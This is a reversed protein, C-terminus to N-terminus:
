KNSPPLNSQDSILKRAQKEIDEGGLTGERRM